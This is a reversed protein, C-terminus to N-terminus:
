FTQQFVSEIDNLMNARCQQAAVNIAQSFAFVSSNGHSKVVVGRLGLLSAGNYHAPDLQRQLQRLVPAAMMAQLRAWWHKHFSHQIQQRIYSAAGECAKLAVNGSFGDTVVLEASDTFLQNAEIYGIYNLRQDQQLLTAAAHLTASGKHAESGVNLLGLRASRHPQLVRMLATGMLAFQHLMDADCDINAGLDLM